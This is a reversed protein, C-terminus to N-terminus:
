PEAGTTETEMPPNVMEAPLPTMAYSWERTDRVPFPMLEMVLDLPIWFYFPAHIRQRDDVREYGEKRLTLRHWGYWQFDFTAPTPGILQDNLYALAGPPESRITLQRRVCGNLLLCCAVLLVMPFGTRGYQQMDSTAQQQGTM